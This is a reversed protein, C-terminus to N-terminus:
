LEGLRPLLGEETIYRTLFRRLDRKTSERTGKRTHAKLFKDRFQLQAEMKRQAARKRVPLGHGARSAWLGNILVVEKCFHSLLPCVFVPKLTAGCPMYRAVVEQVVPKDAYVTVISVKNVSQRIVLFRELHSIYAGAVTAFESLLGERALFEASIRPFKELRIPTPDYYRM